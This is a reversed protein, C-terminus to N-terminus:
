INYEIQKPGMHFRHGHKEFFPTGLRYGIWYSLTMGISAGAGAIIISLMWNLHGQYVLFGSYGMLVEGPFPLALLELLLAFFLVIYGFQDIYTTLNGM